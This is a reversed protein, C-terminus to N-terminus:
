SSQFISFIYYVCIVNFSIRPCLRIEKNIELNVALGATWFKRESHCIAYNAVDIGECAISPHRFIANLRSHKVYSDYLDNLFVAFWKLLSLEIWDLPIIENILVILGCGIVTLLSFLNYLMYFLIVNGPFILIYIM